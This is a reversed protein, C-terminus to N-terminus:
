LAVEATHQLFRARDERPLQAEAFREIFARRDVVPDQVLARVLRRLSERYKLRFVDPEGLSSRVQRLRLTSGEYMALQAATFEDRPVDIFTLPVLNRVVLPINAALRATRKTGEIFPQLYRLHVLVFFACEFPDDIRRAVALLQRFAEDILSPNVSPLYTSQGIQM